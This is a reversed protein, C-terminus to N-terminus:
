YNASLGILHFAVALWVVVTSALVLLVSWLRSWWGRQGRWVAWLNWGAAFLGFLLAATGLVHLAYVIGDSGSTALSRMSLTAVVLAAWLALATASAAAGIRVARYAAAEAGSLSLTAGYKRRVLVTVPWALATLALILFAVGAAPALWAGSRYAPTPEYAMFPSIEDVSFRTIRGNEVRAALRDKGATDRWVFPSTERFLKPRGNLGRLASVAITGDPRSTVRAEGALNALSLFSTEMRRSNDYRGAIMRAHRRATAADVAATPDAAPFYRDAFQEFLAARVGAAAGAKGTSNMSVYLGVGDDLFLHLYSHFYQTDGGHGIVRHGNINTEYFGLVMRNLPPLLTRASTHMLQATRAALIRRGRYEGNQLHAIMFAAMDGAPAALSGAPAAAVFEYPGPPKSAQDYGNSAWRALGPPLPQRFSSRTMGLPQFLNRDMYEDFPVGSVRQVIYGALTTAYNSYAPTEGAPFIRAPVWRKLYREFDPSRDSAPVILDKASEEFGATHTMIDRMTVPRSGARPPIRFDLYTNV